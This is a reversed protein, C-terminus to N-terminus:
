PLQLLDRFLSLQHVRNPIDNGAPTSRWDAPQAPPQRSGFMFIANQNFQVNYGSPIVAFAHICKPAFIKVRVSPPIQKTPFHCRHAFQPDTVGISTPYVEPIFGVKGSIM